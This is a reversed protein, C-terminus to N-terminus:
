STNAVRKFSAFMKNKAVFSNFKNNFMIKFIEKHIIMIALLLFAGVVCCVSCVINKIMLISRFKCMRISKVRSMRMM